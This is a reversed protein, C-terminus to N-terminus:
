RLQQFSRLGARECQPGLNFAVEVAVEASEGEVTEGALAEGELTGRASGM